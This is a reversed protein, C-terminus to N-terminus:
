NEGEQLYIETCRCQIHAEAPELDDPYLPRLLPDAAVGKYFRVCLETFFEEGGVEEFM